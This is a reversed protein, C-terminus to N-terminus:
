FVWNALNTKYYPQPRTRMLPNFLGSTRLFVSRQSLLEIITVRRLVSWDPWLEALWSLLCVSVTKKRNTRWKIPYQIDCSWLSQAGHRTGHHSSPHILPPFPHHRAGNLRCKSCYCHMPAPFDVRHEQYRLTIAIWYIRKWISIYMSQQIKFSWFLNSPQFDGEYCADNINNWWGWNVTARLNRRGNMSIKTILARACLSSRCWQRCTMRPCNTADAVTNHPSLLPFSSLRISFKFIEVDFWRYWVHARTKM